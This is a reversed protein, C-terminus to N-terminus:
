AGGPVRHRPTRQDERRSSRWDDYNLLRRFFRFQGQQNLIEIQMFDTLQRVFAQVRSTLRALDSNIQSRLLTKMSREHILDEVRRNLM